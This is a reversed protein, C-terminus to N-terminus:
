PSSVQAQQTVVVVNNNSQQQAFQQPAPQYGPHAYGAPPPPQYGPQPQGAQPYYAPPKEM